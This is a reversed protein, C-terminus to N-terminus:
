ENMEDFARAGVRIRAWARAKAREYVYIAVYNWTSHRVREWLRDWVRAEVHHKVRNNFGDSM